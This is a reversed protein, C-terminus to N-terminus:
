HAETAAAIDEATLIQHLSATPTDMYYTWPANPSECPGEFFGQDVAAGCPYTWIGDLTYVGAPLGEPFNFLWHKGTGGAALFMDDPRLERGDLIILVSYVDLDYDGVLTHGHQIHFAADASLSYTRGNSPDGDNDYYLKHLFGVPAVVDYSGHAKEWATAYKDIAEQWKGEALKEEAQAMSDLAKEINSPKGLHLLAQDIESQALGEDIALIMGIIDAVEAPPNDIAVLKGVAANHKAFVKWGKDTLLIEDVWYDPDLSREMRAIAAEIKGDAQSDGTPLLAQLAEIVDGIAGHHAGAVTLSTVSTEALAGGSTLTVHVGAELDSGALPFSANSQALVVLGEGSAFSALVLGLALARMWGLFSREKRRSDM